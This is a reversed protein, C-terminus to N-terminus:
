YKADATTTRNATITITNACNATNPNRTMVSKMMPMQAQSQANHKFTTRAITTNSKRSEIPRADNVITVISAVPTTVHRVSHTTVNNIPLKCRHFTAVFSLTQNNTINKSQNISQNIVCHLLLNNSVCNTNRTNFRKTQCRHRQHSRQPRLVIPRRQAIFVLLIQMSAKLIRCLRECEDDFSERRNRNMQQRGYQDNSATLELIQRVNPKTEQHLKQEIRKWGIRQRSARQLCDIECEAHHAEKHKVFTEARSM